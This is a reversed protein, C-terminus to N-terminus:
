ALCSWWCTVKVSKLTLPEKMIESYQFTVTQANGIKNGDNVICTGAKPDLRRFLHPNVLTPSHFAGCQVIVESITCMPNTCSNIIQVQWIPIGVGSIEGQQINIDSPHCPGKLEQPSVTSANALAHNVPAKSERLMPRGAECVALIAILMFATVIVRCSAMIDIRGQLRLDRRSVLKLRYFCCRLIEVQLPDTFLGPTLLLTAFQNCCCNWAHHM